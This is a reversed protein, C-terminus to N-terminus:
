RRWFPFQRRPPPPALLDTLRNTLQARDPAPSLTGGVAISIRGTEESVVVAVADTRETLGLAARHRLGTSPALNPNESHPLVCGAAVIEDGCIVVAGDHLPSNPFFLARLLEASVRGGVPKGTRCVDVLGTRREVAILAGVRERSMQDAAAVIQNVVATQDQPSLLGMRGGLLRGRGLRELAMRLEPQFIIVIAIIGPLMAQRVLWNLTPLPKTIWALAFIVALGKLLQVARTGRVLLLLRYILYAVLFVDLVGIYINRAERFHDLLSDLFTM